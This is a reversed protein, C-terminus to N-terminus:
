RPQVAAAARAAFAKRLRMVRPIYDQTEQPVRGRSVAGPGANYAWLALEPSGYRRMLDRLYRIGSSLNQEPDFLDTVGLERATGPMLQMLGSAGKTSVARHDGGSEAYVVAKVLAADVGHVRSYHDILVQYRETRELKAPDLAARPGTVPRQATQPARRRARPEMPASRGVIQTRIQAAYSRAAIDDVTAAALPERAQAGAGALLLLAAVWPAPRRWSPMRKDNAM